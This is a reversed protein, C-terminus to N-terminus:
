NRNTTRVSEHVFSSGECIMKCTQTQNNTKLCRLWLRAVPERKNSRALKEFSLLDIPTDFISIDLNIVERTSITDDM